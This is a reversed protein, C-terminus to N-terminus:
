PIIFTRYWSAYGCFAGLAGGSINGLVKNPQSFPNGIAQFAFEWTNWFTYTAKDINCYKLTVTDGKKFFNDEMKPPDNKNYGKSLNAEFTTGDFVEDSYISNPGPYFPEGNSKTFYRIYNGVGPPDSIKVMMIRKLTDPNFPAKKFWVSDPVVSLATINTHSTYEKGGDVIRLDYGQNLVGEFATSLSNSDISYYYASLGPLIPLSYEKLKHTLTGNSIYVDADHVFSSALTAIDLTSYFSLSRNLIVMPPKGNEIQADVVLTSPSENLNFNIDKECSFLIVITFFYFLYKM